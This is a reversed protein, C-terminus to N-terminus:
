TDTAVVIIEFDDTKQQLAATARRIVLPVNEREYTPIVV